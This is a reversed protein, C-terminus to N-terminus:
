VLDEIPSPLAVSRLEAVAEGGNRSAPARFTTIPAALEEPDKLLACVFVFPATVFTLM